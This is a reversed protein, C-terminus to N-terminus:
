FSKLILEQRHIDYDEIKLDPLEKQIFDIMYNPNLNKESGAMCSILIRVKDNEKWDDEVSIHYLLEKLNIKELKKAKSLKEFWLTDRRFLVRLEELVREFEGHCSITIEYIAGKVLSMLSKKGDVYEAEVVRLGSPLFQNLEQIVEAEEVKEKLELDVFECSSTVGVGLPLAFSLQVRPNYGSSYQIPLSTRKICRTFTRMNDLHGIYKIENRKEYKMRIIM